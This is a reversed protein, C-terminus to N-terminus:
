MPAPAPAVGLGLAHSHRERLLGYVERFLRPRQHFDIGQAWLSTNVYGGTHRKILVTLGAPVRVVGLRYVPQDLAFEAIETWRLTRTDFLGRIRVGYESVYVGMRLIRWSGLLWLAALIGTLVWAPASSLAFLRVTTWQVFALGGLEWGIIL